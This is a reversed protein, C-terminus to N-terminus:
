VSMKILIFPGEFLLFIRFILYKKFKILNPLLPMILKYPACIFYLFLCTEHKRPSETLISFDTVLAPDSVLPTPKNSAHLFM